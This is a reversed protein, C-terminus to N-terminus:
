FWEDRMELTTPDLTALLRAHQEVRPSDWTFFYRCTQLKGRYFDADAGAGAHLARAAVTAQRLWTWAIVLTGTLDLYASANALLRDPGVEPARALLGRTTSELLDTLRRLEQGWAAPSWGEVDPAAGADDAAARLERLLLGLAAGGRLSVKRGLLDLAQIGNTGEHIPNLRNDRYYQEVPYERTYGYGGLIQIAQENAKLGYESPWAKMVPTLVDLLLGAEERRAADPHTRQDDLLHACYLGLAFSGEAYAKQMLLMRRVDAHGIIAHQEAHPDKAGTPRGQARTRAYDLSYLYGAYALMAAGMGVGIRAENMMHFMYSLGQHPEGVLEGVCRGEDGFNLITSTTGRYGMKHLLGGLRVDNHEGLTGDGEVRYRPVVFLSIGRTGRPADKIRALVLHVINESLEHEGGSIWMKTGTILYTGDDRPTATTLIDALSSGAQPESLAMTGFFRGSLLHPLYRRKQDETGFAALLNANGITLFPYATTAINAAQFAAHAAQTVVAPLQLGGLEYAHHASFFGAERFADLARGVEPVIRVKGDVVHPENLDAERNHPAFYREALNFALDLTADFTDRSHDAYVERSTLEDARLVEYLQFAVDRRDLFAPM